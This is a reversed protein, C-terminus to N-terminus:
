GLQKLLAQAQNQTIHGAAVSQRIQAVQEAKTMTSAVPTDVDDDEGPKPIGPTSGGSSGGGGGASAKKAPLGLVALVEPTRRGLQYLTLANNWNQLYQNYDFERDAMLSNLGSLKAEYDSLHRAYANQELAPLADNLQGRYYNGAQQAAGIAYTSPRGGSMASAQAMTDQTARDAERLYTKKYAGYSPDTAPDYTFPQYNTVENLLSEYANQKDYSFSGGTSTKLGGYTTRLQNEAEQALLKQEATTAGAADQRLKLLSLGFEPNTQAIALDDDSFDKLLGANTAALTFDDYTYAM